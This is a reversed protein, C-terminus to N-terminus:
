GSALRIANKKWMGFGLHFLDIQSAFELKRLAEKDLRTARPNYDVLAIVVRLDEIRPSISLSQVKSQAGKSLGSLLGLRAKQSLQAKLGGVFDTIKPKLDDYYRRIQEALGEVGGALGYKVEILAPSLAKDFARTDGPWFVGVIDTRGAGDEALGQRDIAVYDANLAELNCSRILMQEFEVEKGKSSHEAIRQKIHPIKDKCFSAVEAQTLVDVTKQSWFKAHSQIRYPGVGKPQVGLLCNGKCYVDLRDDRIEAILDRDRQILKLLPLLTGSLLEKEFAVSLVRPRHPTNM